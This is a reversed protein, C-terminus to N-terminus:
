DPLSLVTRENELKNHIQLQGTLTDGISKSPLFFQYPKFLLCPSGCIYRVMPLQTASRNLAERMQIYLRWNLDQNVWM